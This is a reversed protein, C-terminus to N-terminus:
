DTRVEAGATDYDETRETTGKSKDLCSTNIYIGRTGDKYTNIIVPLTDGIYYERVKSTSIPSLTYTTDDDLEITFISRNSNYRNSVFDVAIITGETEQKSTINAQDISFVLYCIGIISFIILLVTGIVKFLDSFM